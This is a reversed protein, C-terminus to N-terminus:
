TSAFGITDVPAYSPFLLILSSSVVVVVFLEKLM